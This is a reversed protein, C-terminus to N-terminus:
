SSYSRAGLTSHTFVYNLDRFGILRFLFPNLRPVRLSLTFWFFGEGARGLLRRSPELSGQAFHQLVFWVVGSHWTPVLLHMHHPLGSCRMAAKYSPLPNPHLLVSPGVEGLLGVVFAQLLLVLTHLSCSPLQWRQYPLLQFERKLNLAMKNITQNPHWENM